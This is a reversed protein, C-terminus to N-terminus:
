IIGRARLEDVCTWALDWSAFHHYITPKAPIVGPGFECKLDRVVNTWDRPSPRYGRRDEVLAMGRAIGQTSYRPRADAQFGSDLGILEVYEWASRWSGFISTIKREGPVGDKRFACTADDWTESSPRVGDLRRVGLAMAHAVEDAREYTPATGYRAGTGASIAAALADAVRQLAAYTLALRREIVDILPVEVGRSRAKRAADDFRDRGPWGGNIRAVTAAALLLGVTDWNVFLKPRHFRSGGPHPPLPGVGALFKAFAFSGAGASRAFTSAVPLDYDRAFGEWTDESFNWGLTAAAARLVLLHAKALRPLFQLYGARVARERDTEIPAVALDDVGGM